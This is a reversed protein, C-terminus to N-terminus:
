VAGATSPPNSFAHHKTVVVHILRDACWSLEGHILHLLKLLAGLHLRSHLQDTDRAHVPGLCVLHRGFGDHGQEVCIVVDHINFARIAGTKRGDTSKSELRDLVRSRLRLLIYGTFLEVVGQRLQLLRDAIALLRNPLLAFGCALLGNWAAMAATDDAAPKKLHDRVIYLWALRECVAYSTDRKEPNLIEEEITEISVM